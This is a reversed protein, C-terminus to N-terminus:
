FEKKPLQQWTKNSVSIMGKKGIIGRAERDIMFLGAREPTVEYLVQKYVAGYAGTKKNRVLKQDHKKVFEMINLNNKDIVDVAYGSSSLNDDYVWKNYPPYTDRIPWVNKGNKKKSKGRVVIAHNLRKGKPKYYIGHEDKHWARVFAVILDKKVVKDFDNKHEWSHIDEFYHKWKQGQDEVYDPLTKYYQQWSVKTQGDETKPEPFPWLIEPVSGHEEQAENVRRQYNGTKRTKSWKALARDSLDFNGTKKRIYGDGLCFDLTPSSLMKKKKKYNLKAEAANNRAFNTCAMSEFGHKKQREPDSFYKDWNDTVFIM